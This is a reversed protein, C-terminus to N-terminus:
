KLSKLFQKGRRKLLILDNLNLVNYLIIFIGVTKTILMTSFPNVIITIGLFLLLIASVLFIKNSGEGIRKLVWFYIGKNMGEVVLWAGLLINLVNIISLPNFMILIGLVISVIGFWLNYHFLKIKNKEIYTYIALIGNILFFTGILIGVFRNTMESKLFIILGLLAYLVSFTMETFIIQSFGKEIKKM